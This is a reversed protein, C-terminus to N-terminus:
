RLCSPVIEYPNQSLNLKTFKMQCLVDPLKTLQNDGIDFTHLATLQKIQAPLEVLLNNKLYLENLQSLQFFSLPLRELQNGNLNLYGLQKLHGISSPIGKLANHSVVLWRLNTLQSISEPLTLLRNKDLDLYHLQTLEGFENPLSTLENNTLNLIKLNKLHGIEAPLTKFQNGDLYLSELQPLQFIEPPLNTLNCNRLAIIKLQKYKLVEKSLSVKKQGSLDLVTVFNNLAEVSHATVSEQYILSQLYSEAAWDGHVTAKEYWYKAKTKNATCGNGWQYLMAFHRMHLGKFISDNSYQNYLAFAESYNTKQFHHEAMELASAANSFTYAVQNPPSLQQTEPTNLFRYILGSICAIPLYIFIKPNMVM